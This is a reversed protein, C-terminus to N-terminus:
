ESASGIASLIHKQGKSGKCISNLECLYTRAQPARGAQRHCGGQGCCRGLKGTAGEWHTQLRVQGIVAARV